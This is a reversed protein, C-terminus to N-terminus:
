GLEFTTIGFIKSVPLDPTQGYYMRACEFVYKAGYANVLEVASPNNVPIDLYVPAGIAKNLCAKYLSEAVSKDDAFLPGIKYGQKVKRMVVFGKMVDEEKYKLTLSGPVNLWAKIFRPRSFGFCKLDYDLVEPLNDNGIGSVNLDISFSTGTLEYRSDRFAMKFGGEAYFPQMAVVGDMGIPANESLRSRLMDRRKIWLMRGIGKGRYEPRMIFLGMFGFAGDYSVISGGGIMEDGIFCGYFGDPDTEYFVEADFPGPNWGEDEAWSILTRVGSLGIKSFTINEM